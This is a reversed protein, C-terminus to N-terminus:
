RAVASRVREAVDAAVWDTWVEERERLFNAAADEATAGTDQMYALARSTEEASTGYANLFEVIQPAAEAFAKNAGIVVDSAPYATAEEPNEAEMMADWTERDFEPEDLRTFDYKGLVWTPGWYYFLIPEERKVAREIAANLAEGTGPRFNTFDEELDYAALKKSNVVECQWGAPCNHFRGKSPEEPDRFLDKYQALDSVSVLDPAKANEGEVLYTPVFWGEVADPFTTGLRVVQGKEEADVWAQAPNATWIEMIVDVDGRAVGNILPITSGPIADVACGYGERLIAQAIATHFAASDYDLGAFVVPRDLGCEQAHARGGPVLALLAIAAAAPLFRM